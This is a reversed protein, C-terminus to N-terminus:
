KRRRKLLLGASALGLVGATAPEPVNSGLTNLDFTILYDRSSTSGLSVLLTGDDNLTNAVMTGVTYLSGDDMTLVDGERLLLVLGAEETYAFYASDNATTVGDGQLAAQFVIQGLDNVLPATYAGAPTGFYKITEGNSLADMQVGTEAILEVDGAAGFCLGISDSLRTVAAMRGGSVIDSIALFVGNSGLNATSIVSKGSNGIAEGTSLWRLTTGNHNVFLNYNYTSGDSTQAVFAVDNNRGLVIGGNSGQSGGGQFNYYTGGGPAADGISAVVRTTRNVADTVVIAKTQDTGIVNALTWLNIVSDSSYSTATFASTLRNGWYLSSGTAIQDHERIVVTADAASNGVLLVNDNLSTTSGTVKLAGRFVVVGANLVTGTNAAAFTAGSTGSITDSTAFTTKLLTNGQKLYTGGAAGVYINGNSGAIYDTYGTFTGSAGTPTVSSDTLKTYTGDKYSWVDTLTSASQSYFYVTGDSDLKPGYSLTRLTTIPGDASSLTDGLSVVTQFAVAAQSIGTMGAVALVAASLISKQVFSQM